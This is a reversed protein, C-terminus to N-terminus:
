RGRMVRLAIDVSEGESVILFAAAKEDFIAVRGADDGVLPARGDYIAAAAGMMQAHSLLAQQQELSRQAPWALECGRLRALPAIPGGGCDTASRLLAAADGETDRRISELRPILTIALHLERVALVAALLAAAISVARPPRWPPRTHRWWTVVIMVILLGVVLPRMRLAHEQFTLSAQLCLLVAFALAIGGSRRVFLYLALLSLGNVMIFITRVSFNRVQAGTLADFEADDFPIVTSLWFRIVAGGVLVALLAPIEFGSFDRRENSENPESM